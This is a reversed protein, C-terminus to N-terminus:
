LSLYLSKCSINLQIRQIVVPLGTVKASCHFLQQDADARPVYHNTWLHTEYKISRLGHGNGPLLTQNVVTEFMHTVDYNGVIITVQPPPYGGAAICRVSAPIGEVLKVHEAESDYSSKRTINNLIIIVSEM